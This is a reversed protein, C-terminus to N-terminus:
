RNVVPHIRELVAAIVLCLKLPHEKPSVSASQRPSTCTLDDRAAMERPPQLHTAAFGLCKGVSKRCVNLPEIPS